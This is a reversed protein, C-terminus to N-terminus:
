AGIQGDVGSVRTGISLFIAQSPQDLEDFSAGALRGKIYGLELGEPQSVDPDAAPGNFYRIQKL